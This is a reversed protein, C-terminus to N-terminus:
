SEPPAGRPGRKLAELAQKATPPRTPTPCFYERFLVFRYPALDRPVIREWEAERPRVWTGDSRGLAYVKRERTECRMGEFAVNTAGGATKIVVTYRMVGDEGLSVSPADIYFRHATASGVDVPVLNAAQPFPPIQVEIEEWARREGDGDFIRWQAAAGSAHALLAAALGAACAGLIRRLHPEGRAREASRM